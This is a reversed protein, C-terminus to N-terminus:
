NRGTNELCGAPSSAKPSGTRRQPGQRCTSFTIPAHRETKSHRMTIGADRYGYANTVPVKTASSAVSSNLNTRRGARSPMLTYTSLTSIRTRPMATPNRSRDNSEEARRRSTKDQRLAGASGQLLAHQVSSWPRHSSANPTSFTLWQFAASRDRKVSIDHANYAAEQNVVNPSDDSQSVDEELRSWEQRSTKFRFMQTASLTFLRLRSGVSYLAKFPWAKFLNRLSKIRFESINRPSCPLGAAVREKDDPDTSLRNYGVFALVIFALILLVAPFM